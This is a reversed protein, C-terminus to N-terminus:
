AKFLDIMEELTRKATEPCFAYVYFFGVLNAFFFFLFIPAANDDDGNFAIPASILVIAGVLRSVFISLSVGAARVNTDFVEPM